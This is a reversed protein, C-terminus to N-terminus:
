EERVTDEGLAAVSWLPFGAYTWNPLFTDGYLFFGGQSKNVMTFQLLEFGPPFVEAGDRVLAWVLSPNELGHRESVLRLGAQLFLEGWILGLLVMSPDSWRGGLSTSTFSSSDSHLHGRKPKQSMPARRGATVPVNAREGGCWGGEGPRNRCCSWWDPRRGVSHALRVEMLCVRVVDVHLTVDAKCGSLQSYPRPSNWTETCIFM